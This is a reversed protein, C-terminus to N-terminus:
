LFSLFPRVSSRSPRSSSYTSTSSSITVSCPTSATCCCKRSSSCWGTGTLSRTCICTHLYLCCGYIPISPLHVFLRRHIQLGPLFLRSRLPGGEPSGGVSCHHAALVHVAVRDVGGASLRVSGGARVTLPSHSHSLHLSLSGICSCIRELFSLSLSYMPLRLPGRMTPAMEACPWM